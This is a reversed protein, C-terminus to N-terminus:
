YKNLLYPKHYNSVEMMLDSFWNEWTSMWKEMKNMIEFEKALGSVMEELQKTTRAAMICYDKYILLILGQKDYLCPDIKFQM